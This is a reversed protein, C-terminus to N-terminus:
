RWLIWGETLNLHLGVSLQSDHIREWNIKDFCPGNVMISVSHVVPCQLIGEDRAECYGMDDANVILQFSSYFININFSYKVFYLM